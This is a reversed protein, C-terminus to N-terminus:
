EKSHPRQNNILMSVFRATEESGTLDTLCTLMMDEDPAYDAAVLRRYVEGGEDTLRAAESGHALGLQELEQLKGICFIFCEHAPNSVSGNQQAKGRLRHACFMCIARIEEVGITDRRKWCDACLWDYDVEPDGSPVACWDTSTGRLLHVCVVVAPAYGDDGCRILPM